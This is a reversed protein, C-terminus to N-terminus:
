RDSGRVPFGIGSESTQLMRNSQIGRIHWTIWADVSSRNTTGIHAMVASYTRIASDTRWDALQGPVGATLDRAASDRTITDIDYM